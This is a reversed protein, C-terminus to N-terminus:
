CYVIPDMVDTMPITLNVIIQVFNALRLLLSTM